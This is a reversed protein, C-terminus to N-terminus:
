DFLARERIADRHRLWADNSRDLFINKFASVSRSVPDRVFTFKFSAPNMLTNVVAPFNPLGQVLRTYEHHINEEVYDHGCEHKYILHSITSCAAKHNKVFIANGKNFSICNGLVSHLESPLAHLSAIKKYRESFPALIKAKQVKLSKQFIITKQKNM